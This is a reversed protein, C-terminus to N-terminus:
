LLPEILRALEEADTPRPLRHRIEGDRDVIVTYPLTGRENGYADLVEFAETTGLLIPYNVPVDELFEEVADREDLAVGVIAVGRGGYRSQVEVLEPIEEVCPPCWTAWFNIVLVRGDWEAIARREGSLDPLSFAPRSDTADESAAEDMWGRLWTVAVFAGILGALALWYLLRRLSM